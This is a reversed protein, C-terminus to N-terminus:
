YVVIQCGCIPSLQLLFGEIISAALSKHEAELVGQYDVVKAVIVAHSYEFSKPRCM